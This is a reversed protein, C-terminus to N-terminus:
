FTLAVNLPPRAVTFVARSAVIVSRLPSCRREEDEAVNTISLAFPAQTIVDADRSGL